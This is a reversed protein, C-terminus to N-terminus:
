IQVEQAGFSSILSDIAVTQVEHTNLKEFEEISMSSIAPADAGVKFQAPYIPVMFLQGQPGLRNKVNKLKILGNLRDTDDAYLSTVTTASRHLESTDALESGNLEKGKELKVQGERNIQALGILIFGKHGFSIALNTMYRVYYKALQPGQLQLGPIPDNMINFHDVIVVDLQNNWDHYLDDLKKSIVSPTFSDCERASLVAIKGQVEKEWMDVLEDMLGLKSESLLYRKIEEATVNIKKVGAFAALLDHYIIESTDELTIYVLNLKQKLVADLAMSIALTTKFNAPPAAFVNLTKYGLFKYLDDLEPVGTKLGFSFEKRNEKWLKLVDRMSLVPQSSARDASQIIGAAKKFDGHQLAQQSQVAVSETIIYRIFDDILQKHYPIKTDYFVSEFQITMYDEDPMEEKQNYFTAAFEFVAKLYACRTYDIYQLIINLQDITVEPLNQLVLVALDEARYQM